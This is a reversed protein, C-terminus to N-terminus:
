NSTSTPEGQKTSCTELQYIMAQQNIRMSLGAQQRRRRGNKKSKMYFRIFAVSMLSSYILLFGLILVPYDSLSEDVADDLPSSHARMYVKCDPSYSTSDKALISKGQRTLNARETDLSSMFLRCTGQSSESSHPCYELTFCSESRVFCEDLCSRLDTNELDTSSGQLSDRFKQDLKRHNLRTFHSVTSVLYRECQGETQSPLRDSHQSLQDVIQRYENALEQEPTKGAPTLLVLNCCPSSDCFDIALCLHGRKYRNLKSCESACTEKDLEGSAGRRMPAYKIRASINDLNAEKKVAIAPEYSSLHNRTIMMCNEQKSILRDLSPLVATTAQKSTPPSDMGVLLICESHLACFSFSSCTIHSGLDFDFNDTDYCLESCSELNLNKRRSMMYNSTDGQSILVFTHDLDTRHFKPDDPRPLSYRLGTETVRFTRAIDFLSYRSEKTERWSIYDPILLAPRSLPSKRLEFTFLPFEDLNPRVESDYQTVETSATEHQSLYSTLEALRADELQTDSMRSSRDYYIQSNEDSILIKSNWDQMENLFDLKSIKHSLKCERRSRDYAFLICGFELCLHACEHVSEVTFRQDGLQLRFTKSELTRFTLIPTVRDYLTLHMELRESEFSTYIRVESLRIYNLSLGLRRKEVVPSNDSRKKLSWDHFSDYLSEILLLGNEEALKAVDSEVKYSVVFQLSEDAKRCDSINFLRALDMQNRLPSSDLISLRLEALLESRDANYAFLSVSKLNCPRDREEFVKAVSLKIRKQDWNGNRQGRSWCDLIIKEESPTLVAETYIIHGTKLRKVRLVRLDDKTLLIRLLSESLTLRMDYTLPLEFQMDERSDVGQCRTDSPEYSLSYQLRYLSDHISKSRHVQFLSMQFQDDLPHDASAYVLTMAKSAPQWNESDMMYDIVVLEMEIRMGRLDSFDKIVKSYESSEILNTQCGYGLPLRFSNFDQASFKYDSDIVEISDIDDNSGEREISVEQLSDDALEDSNKDLNLGFFRYVITLGAITLKWHDPIKSEVNNEDTFAYQHLKNSERYQAKIWAGALGFVWFEGGSTGSPVRTFYPSDRFPLTLSKILSLYRDDREPSESKSTFDLWSESRPEITDTFLEMDCVYPQYSYILKRFQGGDNLINVVRRHNRISSDDSREHEIWSFEFVQQRKKLDLYEDVRVSLDNREVIYSLHLEHHEKTKNLLHPFHFTSDGDGDAGVALSHIAFISFCTLLYMRLIM